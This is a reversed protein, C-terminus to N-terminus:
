FVFLAIVYDRSLIPKKSQEAPIIGTYKSTLGIREVVRELACEFTLRSNSHVSLVQSVRHWTGRKPVFTGCHINRAM